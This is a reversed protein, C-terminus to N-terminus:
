ASGLLQKTAMPADETVGQPSTLVTEARGTASARRQRTELAAARIEADSRTPPLPAAAVQQSGGGFMGGMVVGRIKRLQHVIAVIDSKHLM